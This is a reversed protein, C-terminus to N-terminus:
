SDGAASNVSQSLALHLGIEAPILWGASNKPHVMQRLSCQNPPLHVFGGGFFFFSFFTPSFLPLSSSSPWICTDLVILVFCIPSEKETSNVKEKGAAEGAGSCLEYNSSLTDTQIDANFLPSRPMWLHSYVSVREYRPASNFIILTIVTIILLLLQSSKNVVPETVREGRESCILAQTILQLENPKAEHSSTYAQQYHHWSSRRSSPSASCWVQCTHSRSSNSTLGRFSLSIIIFGITACTMQAMHSGTWGSHHSTM